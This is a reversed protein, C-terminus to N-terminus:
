RQCPQGRRLGSEPVLAQRPERPVAMQCSSTSVLANEKITGHSGLLSPINERMKCILFLFSPFTLTAEGLTVQRHLRPTLIRVWSLTVGFGTSTGSHQAM